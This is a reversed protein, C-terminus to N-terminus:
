RLRVDGKFILLVLSVDLVAVFPFFLAAGFPAYPLGFLGALWLIIFIAAGRLSLEEWFSGYGLLVWFAVHAIWAAIGVSGM